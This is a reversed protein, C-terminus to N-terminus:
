QKQSLQAELERVRAEAADARAKEIATNEMEKQIGKDFGDNFGNDYFEKKINDMVQKENYETLVM